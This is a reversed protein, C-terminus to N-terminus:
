KELLLIKRSLSEFSVYKSNEIIIQKFYIRRLFFIEEQVWLYIEKHCIYTYYKSM